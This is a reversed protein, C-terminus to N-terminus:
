YYSHCLLCIARYYRSEDRPGKKHLMGRVLEPRISENHWMLRCIRFLEKTAEMSGRYVEVPVSDCGPAKGCRLAEDGIGDDEATVCELSRNKNADPSALKAGLFKSWEDLLTDKTVLLDGNVNISPNISRTQRRGSLLRTLRSMERSNGSCEAAEMDNLIGNVHERHDQRCSTSIAHKAVRTNTM